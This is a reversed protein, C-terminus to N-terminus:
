DALLADIESQRDDFLTVERVLGAHFTFLIIRTWAVSRGGRSMAETAVLAVRDESVLWDVIGTIGYTGGTMQMLKGFYDVAATRGHTEGALANKGPVKYVLDDAFLTLMAPIDQRKAAELYEQVKAIKPDTM